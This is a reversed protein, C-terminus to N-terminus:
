FVLLLLFIPLWYKWSRRPKREPKAEPVPATESAPEPEPEPAPAEEPEPAPEPAPAEEPKPAPEPAPAEEPEQAPEPAPFEEPEPAPEPEPEPTPESKPEPEPLPEPTPEPEADPAPEETEVKEDVVQFDENLETAEFQSFPRNIQDKLATDPLFSVKRYGKIVIREGTSVNVSERDKIDSLKFTGWGKVKVIGDKALGEAVVDFFSRLFGEAASVGIGCKQALEDTLNLVSLKKEM